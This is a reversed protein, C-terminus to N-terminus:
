LGFVEELASPEENVTEKVKRDGTPPKEQKGKSGAGKKLVTRHRFTAVEEGILRTAHFAFILRISTITTCSLTCASLAM